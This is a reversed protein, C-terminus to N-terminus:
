CKPANLYTVCKSTEDGVYWLASMDPKDSFATFWFTYGFGGLDLLEGYGFQDAQDDPNCATGYYLKANFAYTGPKGISVDVGQYRRGKSVYWCGAFTAHPNGDGSSDPMTPAAAAESAQSGTVESTSDSRLFAAAPPLLTLSAGTTSGETQARITVPLAATVPPTSVLFSLDSQGGKFALSSPVRLVDPASSTLRIRVGDAPAPQALTVTVLTSDGGVVRTKALTLEALAVSSEPGAGSESPAHSLMAFGNSGSGSTGPQSGCGSLLVLSALAAPAGAWISRSRKANRM